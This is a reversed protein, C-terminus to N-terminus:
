ITLDAYYATCGSAVLKYNFPVPIIKLPKMTFRSYRGNSTSFLTLQNTSSATDQIQVSAAAAMNTDNDYFCGLYFGIHGSAPTYTGTTSNFSLSYDSLDLYKRYMTATSPLYCYNGSVTTSSTVTFFDANVFKTNASVWTGLASDSVLTNSKYWKGEYDFCNLGSYTGTAAVAYRTGSGPAASAFAIDAANQRFTEIWDISFSEPYVINGNQSIYNAM